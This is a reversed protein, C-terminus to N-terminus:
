EGLALDLVLADLGPDDGLPPALRVRDAAGAFLAPLDRRAHTGASLLLPLAVVRLGRILDRWDAAYPAQELFACTVQAFLGRGALTAALAQAGEGAGGPRSSGHAVLLLALASPDFGWALAEARARREVLDAFAPHSGVPPTLRLRRGGRETLSGDLGAIREIHPGSLAGGGAMVPVIVVWPADTLSDIPGLRPEQRLFAVHIEAFRGRRGLRDALAALPAGGDEVSTGHGVLILAPRESV